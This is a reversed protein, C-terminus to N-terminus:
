GQPDAVPARLLRVARLPLIWATVSLSALGLAIAMGSAGVNDRLWGALVFALLAELVFWRGIGNTGGLALLAFFNVFGISFAFFFLGLGACMAQPWVTAEGLWLQMIEPGFVGFGLGFGTGTLLTLAMIRAYARRAWRRDGRTWADSLAPILPFLFLGIVTCAVLVTRMASGFAAAELASFWHSTVIVSAHLMVFNHLQVIWASGATSFLSRLPGSRVDVARPKLPPWMHPHDRCIRVLDFMLLIALPLQLAIIFLVIDPHRWSVLLVALFSLVNAATTVTSTIHSQQFGARIPMALAALFQISAIAFTAFVALRAEPATISDVLGLIRRPDFLQVMGLVGLFLMLGIVASLWFGAGFLQRQRQADSTSAAVAMERTLSPLVGLGLLSVWQTAAVVVLFAALEDADLAAAMLPLTGLQVLTASSKSVLSAGVALWFRRNRHAADVM